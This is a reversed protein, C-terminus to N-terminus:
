EVLRGWQGTVSYAHRLGGEGLIRTQAPGEREACETPGGGRTDGGVGLAWHGTGLVCKQPSYAHCSMRVRGLVELEGLLPAAAPRPCCRVPRLSRAAGAPDPSSRPRSSPARRSATEPGATVATRWCWATAG